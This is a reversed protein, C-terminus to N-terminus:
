VGFGLGWVGFGLGWGLILGTLAVVRARASALHRPRSTATFGPGRRIDRLCIMHPTPSHPPEPKLYTGWDLSDGCRCDALEPIPTRDKYHQSSWLHQRLNIRFNLKPSGPKMSRMHAPAHTDDRIHTESHFVFHIAWVISRKHVCVCMCVYPPNVFIPSGWITPERIILVGVLYRLNRFYTYKDLACAANSRAREMDCMHRVVRIACTSQRVATVKACAVCPIDPARLAM